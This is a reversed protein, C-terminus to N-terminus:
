KKLNNPYLKKGIKVWKCKLNAEEVKKIWNEGLPAMNEIEIKEIENSNKIVDIDRIWKEVGNWAIMIGNDTCLKPPTRVFNYGLETCVINLAKALFNNCAVGGSVVQEIFFRFVHIM